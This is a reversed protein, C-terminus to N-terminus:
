KSYFVSTPNSVYVTTSCNKKGVKCVPKVSIYYMTNKKLKKKKFKKLTYSTNKSKVAGAKTFTKTDYSTSVYIEYASAGSVKSWNIKIGSGSQKATIKKPSTGFTIVTSWPSYVKQKTGALTVYSRVRASYFTGAKIKKSNTYTGLYSYFKTENVIPKKFKKSDSVKTIQLQFAKAGNIGKWEFSADGPYATTVKFDRIKKPLTTAYTETYTNSVATFDSNSNLAYVCIAYSGDEKLNKITCSNTSTTLEKSLDSLGSPYYVVKYGSAGSVAAWKFSLSAATAKTGIIKSTKDSIRAVVKLTDSWNGIDCLNKDDMYAYDYPATYACVRAYFVSKGSPAHIKATPEYYSGEDKWTIKDESTELRYYITQDGSSVADWTLTIDPNEYPEIDTEKLNTVTATKAEVNVNALILLIFAFTFALAFKLLTTVYSKTKMFEGNRRM